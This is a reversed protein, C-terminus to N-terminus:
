VRDLIENATNYEFWNGNQFVYSQPGGMFRILDNLCHDDRKIFTKVDRSFFKKLIEDIKKLSTVEPCSTSHNCHYVVKVENGLDVALKRCM